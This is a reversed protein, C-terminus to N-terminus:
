RDQLTKHGYGTNDVRADKVENIGDGNHGLVMNSFRGNLYTLFDSVSSTVNLHEYKIQEGDHAFGEKNRHYELSFNFDSLMDSILKFNYENEDVYRYDFVRSLDTILKNSM